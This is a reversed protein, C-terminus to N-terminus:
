SLAMAIEPKQGLIAFPAEFKIITQGADTETQISDANELGAYNAFQQIDGHEAYSGLFYRSCCGVYFRYTLTYPVLHGADLRNAGTLVIRALNNMSKIGLADKIPGIVSCGEFALHNARQDEIKAACRGSVPLVGQAALLESPWRNQRCRNSMAAALHYAAPAWLDQDACDEGVHFPNVALFLWAAGPEDRLARWKIHSPGALRGALDAVHSLHTHSKMDFLGPATNFVMPTTLHEAMRGLHHLTSINSPQHDFAFSGFALDLPAPADDEPKVYLLFMADCLEDQMCDVLDLRVNDGFFRLVAHLGRWAGHLERLDPTQSIQRYVEKMLRQLDAAVKSRDRGSYTAEFFLKKLHGYQPTDNEGLDVMNLLDVFEDDRSQDALTKLLQSLEEHLDTVEVPREESARSVDVHLQHLAQLFPLHRRMGKARFDALETITWALLIDPVKDFVLTAQAQPKLEALLKDWTAQNLMRRVLPGETQRGSFNGFCAMHFTRTTVEAAGGTDVDITM